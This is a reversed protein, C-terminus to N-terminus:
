FFQLDCGNVEVQREIACASAPLFHDHAELKQTHEAPRATQKDGWHELLKAIVLSISRNLIPSKESNLEPM